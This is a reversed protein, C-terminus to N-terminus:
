WSASYSLLYYQPKKQTQAKVFKNEQLRVLKDASLLQAISKPETAPEAESEEPASWTSLYQLDESSLKDTAFQITQGDVTMTVTETAPNYSTVEGRFTRTGDASTWDRPEALVSTAALLSLTFLHKM